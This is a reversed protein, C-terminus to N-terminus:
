GLDISNDEGLNLAYLCLGPERSNFSLQLDVPKNQTEDLQM